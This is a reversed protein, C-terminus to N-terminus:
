KMAARPATSGSANRSAKFAFRARTKTPTHRVYFALFITRRRFPMRSTTTKFYIATIASTAASRRLITRHHVGLHDDHWFRGHQVRLSVRHTVGHAVQSHRFHAANSDPFVHLDLDFPLVALKFRPQM